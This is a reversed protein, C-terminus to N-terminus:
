IYREEVAIMATLRDPYIEGTDWNIYTAGKGRKVAGWDQMTDLKYLRHLDIKKDGMWTSSLQWEYGEPAKHKNKAVM